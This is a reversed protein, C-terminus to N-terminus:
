LALADLRADLEEATMMKVPHRVRFVEAHLEALDIDSWASWPRGKTFMLTVCAARVKERGEPTACLAKLALLHDSRTMSVPLRLFLRSYTGTPLARNITM